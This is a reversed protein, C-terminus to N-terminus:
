KRHLILSCVEASSYEEGLFQGNAFDRGKRSSLIGIDITWVGTGCGLDLIRQPNDRIPATHLKGGIVLRAM